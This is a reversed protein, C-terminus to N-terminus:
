LLSAIITVVVAAVGITLPGAALLRWRWLRWGKYDPKIVGKIKKLDLYLTYTLRYMLSTIMLSSTVYLIYGIVGLIANQEVMSTYISMTIFVVIMYIILAVLMRGFVSWWYGRIYDRSLILSKVGGVKQELYVFMALSVWTGIIIGPIILFILGTYFAFVSLFVVAYMSWAQRYTIAEWAAKIKTIPEQVAQVQMVVMKGAILILIIFALVSAVATIAITFFNWTLGVIPAAIAAIIIPIAILVFAGLYALLGFLYVKVLMVWNQAIYKSGEQLWTVVSPLKTSASASKTSKSM